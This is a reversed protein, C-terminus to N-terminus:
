QQQLLFYKKITQGIESCTAAFHFEGSVVQHIYGGTIQLDNFCLYSISLFRDLGTLIRINSYM